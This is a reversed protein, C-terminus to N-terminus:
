GEKFRERIEEALMQYEVDRRAKARADKLYEKVRCNYERKQKDNFRYRKM